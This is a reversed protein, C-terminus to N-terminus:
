RQAILTDGAAMRSKGAETLQMTLYDHTTLFGRRHYDRLMAHAAQESREAVFARWGDAREEGNDALHLLRNARDSM